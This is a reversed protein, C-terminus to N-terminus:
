KLVRINFHCSSLYPNQGNIGNMCSVILLFKSVNPPDKTLFRLIVKISITLAFWRLVDDFINGKRLQGSCNSNM